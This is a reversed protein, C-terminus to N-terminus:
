PSHIITLIRMLSMLRESPKKETCIHGRQEASPTHQPAAETSGRDLLYPAWLVPCSVLAANNLKRSWTSSFLLFSKSAAPKRGAPTLKAIDRYLTCSAKLFSEAKLFEAVEVHISDHDAPAYRTKYNM